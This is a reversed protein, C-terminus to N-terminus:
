SAASKRDRAPTRRRPTTPIAFAQLTLTLERRDDGPWHLLHRSGLESESVKRKHCDHGEITAVAKEFVDTVNREHVFLLIAAKTDRWGLYSLLQDIAEKFKETGEWVKCEGIFVNREGWRILIDTKGASNFVEGMADGQFVANLQALFFDRLEEELLHSFVAPAREMVIGMSRTCVLIDEYAAAQIAPEPQFRDEPTAKPRTILKRTVPVPIVADERRTVPVDLSALVDRHRLLKERRSAVLDGVVKPLRENHARVDERLQELEHQYQSVKLGLEREISEKTPDAQTIAIRLENGNVVGDFSVMMHKTPQAEFLGAQGDFPISYVIRVAPRMYASPGPREVGQDRTMQDRHLLPVDLRYASVVDGVVDEAPRMLIEDGMELVAKQASALSRSIFETIGPGYFHSM